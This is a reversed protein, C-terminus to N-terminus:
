NCWMQIFEKLVKDQTLQYKVQFVFFSNLGGYCELSSFIGVLILLPFFVISAISLLDCLAIVFSNCITSGFINISSPQM